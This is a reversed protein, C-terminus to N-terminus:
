TLAGLGGCSGGCRRRAIHKTDAHGPSIIDYRDGNPSQRGLVLNRDPHNLTVPELRTLAPHHLHTPCQHVRITLIRM